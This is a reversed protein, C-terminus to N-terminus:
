PVAAHLAIERTALNYKGIRSRKRLFFSGVLLAVSSLLVVVAISFGEPWPDSSYANTAWDDPVDREADPPWVLLADNTEDYAALRVGWVIDLLSSGANKLIDIELIWHPDSGNPSSNITNAWSIDEALPTFLTWGSGTGQYMTLNTHGEIDIRYHTTGPATGGGNNNDLCLQWYDGDDTTNDSFFEVIWRTHVNDLQDWVSGFAVDDGIVVWDCDTWESSPSWMGDLNNAETTFWDTRTYGSTTSAKVTGTNIVLLSCLAILCFAVLLAKKM